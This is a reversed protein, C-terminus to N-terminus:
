LVSEIFSTNSLAIDTPTDNQNIITLTFAKNYTNAGDNVQVYINHSSGTEYDFTGSSLLSNGSIIFRNNSSDNSGDGNILSYSFNNLSSTDADVSTLSAITGSVLDEVLTTTSLAMASPANDNVDVVSLTFSSTLTNAGDNVQVNILM